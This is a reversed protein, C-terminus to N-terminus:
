RPTQRLRSLVAGSVNAASRPAFEQGPKAKHQRPFPPEPYHRAGAQMASNMKEKPHREDARAVQRQLGRHRAAVRKGSGASTKNVM